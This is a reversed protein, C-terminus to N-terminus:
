KQKNMLKEIEEKFLELRIPKELIKDIKLHNLADHADFNSKMFASILMIKLHSDSNYKERIRKIFDIGNMQPMKYDTIILLSSCNSINNDIYNLADIPNDFSIIQYGWTQLCECFLNLIDKEDDVLLIIPNNNATADTTSTILSL